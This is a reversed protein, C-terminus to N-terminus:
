MGDLLRVADILSDCVIHKCWEDCDVFWDGRSRGGLHKGGEITYSIGYREVAYKGRGVTTFNTLHDLFYSRGNIKVMEM